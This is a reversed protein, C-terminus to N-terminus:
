DHGAAETPLREGAEIRDPLRNEAPTLPCSYDPSYACYPHYAENFDLVYSGDPEPALDLYRGAGYTEPGSTADLFPVFLSGDSAGLEYATLRRTTGGIPLSLTGLRRALRTGGDSTAIEIRVEAGDAPPELGVGEFRLTPDVPFYALGTFTAREARPIPSDAGRAFWADKSARRHAIRSGYAAAEGDAESAHGM